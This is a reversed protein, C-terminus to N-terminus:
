RAQPGSQSYEIWHMFRMLRPFPEVLPPRTRGYLIGERLLERRVTRATAKGGPDEVHLAPM